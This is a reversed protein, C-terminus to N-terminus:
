PGPRAQVARRLRLWMQAWLATAGGKRELRQVPMELPADPLRCAAATPEAWNDHTVREDM